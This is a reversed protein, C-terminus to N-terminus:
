VDEELAALVALEEDTPPGMRSVLSPSLDSLRLSPLAARGGSQVRAVEPHPVTELLMDFHAEPRETLREFTRRALEARESSGQSALEGLAEVLEPLSLRPDLDLADLASTASCATTAPATKTPVRDSVSV